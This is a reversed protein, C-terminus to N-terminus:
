LFFWIKDRWSFMRMIRLVIVELGMYVNLYTVVHELLFPIIFCIPFHSIYFLLWKPMNLCIWVYGPMILSIWAYEFIIWTYESGQTVRAYESSQYIWFGPLNLVQPMNLIRTYGSSQCMWFWICIWFGPSNLVPSMSLLKDFM